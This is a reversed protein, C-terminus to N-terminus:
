ENNNSILLLLTITSKSKIFPDTILNKEIRINNSILKEVSCLHFDISLSFLTYVFVTKDQSVSMRRINKKAM